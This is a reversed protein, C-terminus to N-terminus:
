PVIQLGHVSGPEARLSKSWRSSRRRSASHSKPVPIARRSRPRCPCPRSAHREARSTKTPRSSRRHTVSLSWLAPIASLPHPSADLHHVEDALRQCATWVLHSM